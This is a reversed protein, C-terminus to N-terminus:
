ECIEDNVYKTMSKWLLSIPCIVDCNEPWTICKVEPHKHFWSRVIESKTFVNSEKFLPPFNPFAFMNFTFAPRVQLYTVNMNTVLYPLVIGDMIQLYQYECLFGDSIFVDFLGSETVAVWINLGKCVGFKSCLVKGWDLQHHEHPFSIYQSDMM